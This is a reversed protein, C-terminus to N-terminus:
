QYIEDVIIIGDAGVNGGNGGVGASGGAGGTGITYTYTSSPTNIVFEIGAGGGGGSGSTVAGIAPGGSGGAGSNATAAAQAGGPFFGSSGGGGGQAVAGVVAAQAGGGVTGALGWTAGSTAVAAGGTGATAGAAGSGKNATFTSFTTDTGNGGTGAGSSGSGGGGGGGGVMRVRLQIPTPSPRTYTASTGSKFVQRTPPTLGGSYLVTGGAGFVVSSSDTGTFTLTNSVTATKGDAITLTASTAPATLAVKNISTATAAGLVPTVLTPTNAFVNAGTGTEDTLAAALNASTPTALFTAVGTGFGTISGVAPTVTQQSVATVLGKANATLTLSQTASGLTGVNSNVTVLTTAVAGASTTIDGTLAPMRAAALTGSVDSGGLAVASSTVNGSSDLHVLGTSLQVLRLAGSAGIRIGAGNPSIGSGAGLWLVQEGRVVADGAVTGVLFADAGSSSGINIEPVIRGLTINGAVGSAGSLVAITKASLATFTSSTTSSTVGPGFAGLKNTLLNNVGLQVGVISANGDYGYNQTGSAGTRNFSTNGDWVSYSGDGNFATTGSVSVQSYLGPANSNQGNDVAVNGTITVHQAGNYIGAGSNTDAINGVITSFPSWNEIGQPEVGNVDVGSSPGLINNSIINKYTFSDQSTTIVGGFKVNKIINNNIKTDHGSVVVPFGNVLNGEILGNSSELNPAILIGYSSTNVPTTKEIINDSFRYGVAGQALIGVLGAKTIRVRDVFVNTVANGFGIAQYLANPTFDGADITLDQVGTNTVSNGGSIITGNYNSLLKLTTAGIGGGRLTVNSLLNITAVGVVINHSSPLQVIGGGLANAAVIAANIAAVDNTVGDAVAGFDKASIIEQAKALWTRMVAGTGSQLFGQYTSPVGAGNGILAYGSIGDELSALPVDSLSITYNSGTKTVIVGADGVVSSPFRPLVKLKVIAKRRVKVKIQATM